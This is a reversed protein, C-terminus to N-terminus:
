KTGKIKEASRLGSLGLMGLLVQMTLTTDIVPYAGKYDFFVTACFRVMPEVVAVYALAVGCTWGVGPRWGAVWWNASKAEEKNIDLQGIIQGLEGSLQMELLKLKAAEAEATNPLIKDFLKGVVPILLEWM